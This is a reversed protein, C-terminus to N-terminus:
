RAPERLWLAAGEVEGPTTHSEGCWGHYRLGAAFSWRLFRRRKAEDPLLWIFEPEDLFARARVNAARQRQAAALPVPESIVQM